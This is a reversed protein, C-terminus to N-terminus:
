NAHFAALSIPNTTINASYVNMGKLWFLEIEIGGVIMKKCWTIEIDSPETDLVIASFSPQQRGPFYSYELIQGIADRIAHKTTQQYCTKLEFLYRKNKYVAEVDIFASEIKINDAGIERLWKCFRNSLQNHLRSIVKQQEATFRLYADELLEQNSVGLPKPVSNSIGRYIEPKSILFTPKTYRSLYKPERGGLSETSLVLPPDFSHINMPDVLINASFQDLLLRRAAKDTKISPLKLAVLEDIRKALIDSQEFAEKLKKRENQNLFEANEYHGVLVRQKTKNIAFFFIDHANGTLDSHDTPNYYIYGFARGNLLDSTNLNWEEHGFGNVGVYSQEKLYMGGTPGRWSNTNWCLRQLLITM